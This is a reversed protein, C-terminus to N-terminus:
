EYRGEIMKLVTNVLILVGAVALRTVLIREDGGVEYSGVAGLAIVYVMISIWITVSPIIRSVVPYEKQRLEDRM